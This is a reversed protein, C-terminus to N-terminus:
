GLVIEVTHRKGDGSAPLEVGGVDLGDLTMRAVGRSVHEPNLVTIEYTAGRFVRKMYFGDWHAPICPDIRLGNWEPRVGLLWESGV